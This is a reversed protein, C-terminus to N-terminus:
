KANDKEQIQKLIEDVDEKYYFDYDIEFEDEPHFIEKLKLKKKIEECVEKRVQKTYDTISLFPCSKLRKQKVTEAAIYDVSERSEQCWYGFEDKGCLCCELCQTPFEDVYLKM